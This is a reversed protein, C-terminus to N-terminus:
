IMLIILLLFLGPDGKDGKDGKPGTAGDAGAPGQPGTAGTDGKEGTAGTDGTDGKDGKEGHLEIAFVHYQDNLDMTITGSGSLRKWRLSITHDGVSPTLIIMGTGHKHSSAENTYLDFVFNDSDSDIKLAFTGATSVATSYFGAAIIFLVPKGTFTITDSTALTEYTASTTSASPNDNKLVQIAQGSVWDEIADGMAAMLEVRDTDNEVADLNAKINSGLVGSGM